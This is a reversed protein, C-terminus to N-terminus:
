KNRVVMTVARMEDSVYHLRWGVKIVCGTRNDPHWIMLTGRTVHCREQTVQRHESVSQRHCTFLSESFFVKSSQKFCGNYHDIRKQVMVPKYDCTHTPFVRFVSPHVYMCICVCLSGPYRLRYLSQSRAPCGLPQLEPRLLTLFKRKEVDDLSRDLPYKPSKGRPYLPRPTFSVV